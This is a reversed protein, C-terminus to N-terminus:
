ADRSGTRAASLGAPLDDDFGPGDGSGLKAM